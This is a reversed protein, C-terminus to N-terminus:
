KRPTVAMAQILQEAYDPRRFRIAITGRSPSYGGVQIPQVQRSALEYGIMTGLPPALLTILIFCLILGLNPPSFWIVLATLFIAAMAMGFGTSVGQDM